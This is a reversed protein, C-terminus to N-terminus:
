GIVALVADKPVRDGSKYNIAKITGSVPATIV